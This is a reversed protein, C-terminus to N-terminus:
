QEGEYVKIFKGCRACHIAERGLWINWRVALVIGKCEPCSPETITLLRQKIESM